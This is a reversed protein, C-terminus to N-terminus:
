ALRLARAARVTKAAAEALVARRSALEWEERVYDLVDAPTGPALAPAVALRRVADWRQAAKWLLTWATGPRPESVRIAYLLRDAPRPPTSRLRRLVGAPIEVDFHAALFALADQLDLVLRESRAADILKEWDVQESACRLVILADAIWRLPAPGWSVGHACTLVLLDTASPALTPVRNLSAPVADAWLGSDNSRPFIAAWHLDLQSGRPGVLALSHRLRMATDLRLGEAAQWGADGLVRLARETDGPKVLIDVDDMPRLAVQPLYLAVLAAGKLLMVPIGAEQLAAVAQAGQYLLQQNAYWAHRYVGALRGMAPDDPDISRLNRSLQPLVRYGDYDLHDVGPHLSRYRRWAAAAPSGELLAAQLLLLEDASPWPSPPRPEIEIM